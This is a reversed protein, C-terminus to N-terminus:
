CNMRCFERLIDRTGFRHPPYEKASPSSLNPSSLVVGLGPHCNKASKRTDIIRFFLERPSDTTKPATPEHNPQVLGAAKLTNCVTRRSCGVAEAIQALTLKGESRLRKIEDARANRRDQTRQKSEQRERQRKSVFFGCAVIEEQTLSLMRTITSADLVYHGVEGKINTVTDVSLRVGVLESDPLPTAFRKNFDDLLSAAHQRDYIQVASNYYVFCMLERSGECDFDRHKQLATVNKMRTHLLPAFRVLKGAHHPLAKPKQEPRAAFKALDPLTFYCDHSSVIRAFRGASSNYTGPIRSVRALDYVARDVEIGDIGELLMALSDGLREQVDAFYSLSKDNRQGNHLYPISRELVYYLHLGRGSHILLNPAPLTSNNVAARIRALAMQVILECESPSAGHCDIDFFMANVQKTRATIRRPASFGNHTIYCDPLEFLRALDIEGKKIGRSHWVGGQKWSFVYFSARDDHLLTDFFVQMQREHEHPVHQIAVNPM